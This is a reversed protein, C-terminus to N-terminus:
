YYEFAIYCSSNTCFWYYTFYTARNKQTKLQFAVLFSLIAGYVSVVITGLLFYYFRENVSTVILFPQRIAQFAIQAVICITTGLVTLKFITATPNKRLFSKQAFIFITVILGVLLVGNIKVNLAVVRESLNLPSYYILWWEIFFVALLIISNKIISAQM